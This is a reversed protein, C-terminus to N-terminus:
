LVPILEGTETDMIFGEVKIHSAVLPHEQVMKVSKRVAAETDGFGELWEDLNTGAAEVSEIAADTIGAEKMLATMGKGTMHQAGCDTHAVVMVTEVDLEYIAVLLSRMASGYPEFVEAGANTIVNADGNELGLAASLMTILRTDMCAVVALKKRPKKGARYPAASDALVFEKNHALISDIPETM